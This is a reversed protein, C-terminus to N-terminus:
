RRWFPKGAERLAQAHTLGVDDLLHPRDALEALARRQGRREGWRRLVACWRPLRAWSSSQRPAAATAPRRALHLIPTERTITSM